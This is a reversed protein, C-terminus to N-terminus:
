KLGAHHSQSQGLIYDLLIKVAGLRWFPLQRQLHLRGQRYGAMDLCSDYHCLNFSKMVIDLYRQYTITM